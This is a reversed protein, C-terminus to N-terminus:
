GYLKKAAFFVGDLFVHNLEYYPKLQSEDFAYRAQRVKESYFAWDHAAVKFGGNERDIVAQLDAAERKANLVSPAALEALLKNVTAINGATQEELQYAAHNAHGLLTARDARLRALRSVIARNDFPSGNSGRALSVQMIRERLPRNTLNTLAPQGTTNMMRLVFKGEKGDEKAALEAAAIQSESLGALEGRNEIVISSANKEKQVNQAFETELMAIESNLTRLKNKDAESLRAGARVFDRHYRELVRKSEADLDLADRQDFLTKVRAFLRADLLIADTHAALKPAIASEIEQITPNTHASTLNFFVNNVRTLLQGSRELAVITNAFTPQESNQAIAQVETLQDAMGQEFAPAYHADNLRDFHPYQFPLTSQRLLPNEISPTPAEAAQVTVAGLCSLTPFLVLQAVRALITKQM